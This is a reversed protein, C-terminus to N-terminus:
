PHHGDQDERRSSNVTNHKVFSARIMRASMRDAVTAKASYTVKLEGAGTM